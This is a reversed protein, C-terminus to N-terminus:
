FNLYRVLFRVGKFIHLILLNKIFDKPQEYSELRNKFNPLNQLNKYALNTYCFPEYACQDRLWNLSAPLQWPSDLLMPRAFQFQM